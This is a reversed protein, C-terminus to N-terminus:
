TGAVRSIAAELQKFDIPKTLHEAFGAARSRELDEEMGFGSLAIGRIPQLKQLRAILELGTGDPLGIDSVLVDFHTQGAIRLADEVRNATQVAYGRRGLLRSMALATDIHDEVLLVSIGRREAPKADANGTKGRPEVDPNITPLEITITAGKGIGESHAWIRGGHLEALAKCIALGLGLGGFQRTIARDAQEFANFIKRLADPAIGIGNDIVAIRLRDGDNSTAVRITGGDPSFKAANKVLNWLVQQLRAPDGWVQHRGATAEVAVKLNKNKLEAGCCTGVAFQIQQHMDVIERRIDLKGRAIRTLDLLDDILRAELDINRRIVEVQERLRPADEIETELVGLSLLVATLPTRLEHSLVALFQDKARNAAEAQERAAQERLLGIRQEQSKRHQIAYRISRELSAPTLQMKNLYDAAGANMAAVDVEHDGQGTLLIVPVGSGSAVARLVFEVGNKAGLHYDVLCADYPGSNLLRQVGTDFDAAWDVDFQMGEIDRFHHRTLLADDEDDEVLLVRIVPQNESSM